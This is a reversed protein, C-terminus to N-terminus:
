RGICLMYVTRELQNNKNRTLKLKKWVELSRRATIMVKEKFKYKMQGKPPDNRPANCEEIEKENVEWWRCGCEKRKAEEEIRMRGRCHEDVDRCCRHRFTCVFSSCVFLPILLCCHFHPLADMDILLSTVHLWDIDFPESPFKVAVVLSIFQLAVREIWWAHAVANIDLSFMSVTLREIRVAFVYVIFLSVFPFVRYDGCFFPSISHSNSYKTQKGCRSMRCKNDNAAAVM